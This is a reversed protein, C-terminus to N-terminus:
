IFMEDDQPEISSPPNRRKRFLLDFGARLGRAVAGIEKVPTLICTHVEELLQEARDSASEVKSKLELVESRVAGTVEEMFDDIKVVRTHLIDAADVVKDKVPIFGEGIERVATLTENTRATVSEVNKLLDKSLGDIKETLQRIVKFIGFFILMQTFVALALIGTFITLLINQTEM